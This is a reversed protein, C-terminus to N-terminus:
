IPSAAIVLAEVMESFPAAANNVTAHITAAVDDAKAAPEGYLRLIQDFKAILWKPDPRDYLLSLAGISPAISEIEALSRGRYAIERMWEARQIPGLWRLQDAQGLRRHTAEVEEKPSDTRVSVAVLIVEQRMALRVSQALLGVVNASLFIALGIWRLAVVAAILLGLEVFSLVAKAASGLEVKRIGLWWVAIAM